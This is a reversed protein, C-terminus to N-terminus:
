HNFYKDTTETSTSISSIMGFGLRRQPFTCIMQGCPEKVTIFMNVKAFETAVLVTSNYNSQIQKLNSRSCMNM